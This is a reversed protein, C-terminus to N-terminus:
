YIFEPLEAYDKGDITVSNNELVNKLCKQILNAKLVRTMATFQEKKFSINEMNNLKLNSVFM